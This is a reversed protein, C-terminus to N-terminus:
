HGIAAVRVESELVEHGDVTLYLTEGFRSATEASDFCVDTGSDGFELAISGDERRVAKRIACSGLLREVTRTVERGDLTVLRGPTGPEVADETGHPKERMVVGDSQVAFSVGNAFDVSSVCGLMLQERVHELKILIEDATKGEIRAHLYYSM